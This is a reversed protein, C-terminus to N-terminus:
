LRKSGRITTGCALEFNKEESLETVYSRELYELAPAMLDAMRLSMFETLAAGKLGRAWSQVIWTLAWIPTEYGGVEHMTVEIAPEFLNRLGQATMNYYHHPFGHVPQLLPVMCYVEGGPKLVRVIERACQWPDKVHELVALSFVADFSNDVFPLCEGVGCVDTTDYPAIEFNVVNSYYTDRRGAGCDLLLGDAYKEIMGRAIPDYHNSSVNATDIINFQARLADSLFDFSGDAAETFPMDTRLLHRFQEAKARKAARIKTFVTIKRGERRGHERFHALGSAFDGRHVAQAVDPNALLYAGENFNAETAVTSLQQEHM